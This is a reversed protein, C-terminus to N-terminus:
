GPNRPTGGATPDGHPPYECKPVLPAPEPIARQFGGTKQLCELVADPSWSFGTSPSGPLLLACLEAVTRTLGNAELTLLVDEVTRPPSRLDAAQETVIGKVAAGQLNLLRLVFDDPHQPQVGSPALRDNSLGQPEPDRDRCPLKGEDLLKILYPRSVNLM